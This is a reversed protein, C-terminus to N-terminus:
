ANSGYDVEATVIGLYSQIHEGQLYDTTSLIM